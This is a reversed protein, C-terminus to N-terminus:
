RTMQFVLSDNDIIAKFMYIMTMDFDRGPTGNNTYENGTGFAVLGKERSFYYVYCDDYWHQSVLNSESTFSVLLLNDYGIGDVYISENLRVKKRYRGPGEWPIEVEIITDLGDPIYGTDLMQINWFLNVYMGTKTLYINGLGFGRKFQLNYNIGSDSEFRYEMEYSRAWVWTTDPGNAPLMELKLVGYLADMSTDRIGNANFDCFPMGDIYGSYYDDTRPNYVGDGNIDDFPIGPSWGDAPGDYRNNRNLDQNIAPDLAMVFSDIDANYVGDGDVDWFPEGIVGEWNMVPEPFRPEFMRLTYKSYMFQTTDFHVYDEYRYSISQPASPNDQKTCGVFFLVSMVLLLGWIKM